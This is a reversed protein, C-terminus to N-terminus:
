RDIRRTAARYREDSRSAALDLGGVAVFRKIADLEGEDLWMGHSQCEDVIVGSVEGFNRRTMMNSCMPCQRYVVRDPLRAMARVARSIEALNPRDFLPRQTLAGLEDPQLWLGNCSPCVDLEVQQPGVLRPETPTRCDPCRVGSAGSQTVPRPIRTGPTTLPGSGMIRDLADLAVLASSPRATLDPDMMAGIFRAIRSGGGFIGPYQEAISAESVPAPAHGSVMHLLTAGVGYLDDIPTATGPVYEPAHYGLGGMYDDAGVVRARLDAHILGPNLLVVRGDPRVLTMNSRVSGHSLPTARDHLYALTALMQRTIRLALDPPAPGFTRILDEVTRGGVYEEVVWVSATARRDVVMLDFLRPLGPHDIDRFIASQRTLQVEAEASLPEALRYVRAAHLAGSALEEALFVLMVGGMDLRCVPQYRGNSAKAISEGALM